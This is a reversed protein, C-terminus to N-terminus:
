AVAFDELQKVKKRYIVYKKQATAALKKNNIDKTSDELAKLYERYIKGLTKTVIKIIPDFVNKDIPKRKAEM